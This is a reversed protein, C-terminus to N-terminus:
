GVVVGKVVKLSGERGGGGAGSWDNLGLRGGGAGDRLGPEVGEGGGEVLDAAGSRSGVTVRCSWLVVGERREEVGVGPPAIVKRERPVQASQM